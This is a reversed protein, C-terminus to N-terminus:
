VPCGEATFGSVDMIWVENVRGLSSVLGDREREVNDDAAFGGFKRVAICQSKWKDLQLNLEAAPQPPPSTKDDYKPPMYYRVIYASGHTSTSSSIVSTLVPATMFFQTSNLNAGHLYQYLRHFGEKTSNRFSTGHVLASMWSIEKYLRIEFDSELHIVKFQPSEITYAPVPLVLCKVNVYSLAATLTVILAFLREM